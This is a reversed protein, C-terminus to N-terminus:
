WAPAVASSRAWRCSCSRRRRRRAHARDPRRQPDSGDLMASFVDTWSGGTAAVLLAALVLAGGICVVYLGVVELSSAAARASARRPSSRPASRTSRRSRHRTGDADSLVAALEDASEDHAGTMLM